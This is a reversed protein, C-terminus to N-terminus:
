PKTGGCQPFSLQHARYLMNPHSSTVANAGYKDVLRMWVDGLGCVSYGSRVLLYVSIKDANAEHVRSDTSKRSPPSTTHYLMSHGMEHGLVYALESDNKVHDLMGQTIYMSFITVYANIQKSSDYQLLPIAHSVGTHRVLKKYIMQARAFDAKYTFQNVIKMHASRVMKGTDLKQVALVTVLGVAVYLIYDRIKM